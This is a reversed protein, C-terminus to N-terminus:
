KLESILKLAICTKGSGCGLSLIGGGYNQRM